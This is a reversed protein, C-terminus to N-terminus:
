TNVGDEMDGPKTGNAGAWEHVLTLSLRSRRRHLDLAGGSITDTMQHIPSSPPTLYLVQHVPLPVTGLLLAPDDEALVQHTVEVSHIFNRLTQFEVQQM